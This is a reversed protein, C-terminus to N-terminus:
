QKVAPLFPSLHLFGDRDVPKQSHGSYIVTPNLMQIKKLSLAIDRWDTAYYNQAKLSPHVVILDGVFATGERLFITIAGPTHGPTFVVTAPLGYSDLSDGDHLIIDPIVPRVRLIAEVVPQLVKGVRGWSHTLPIDTRGEVLAQSDPASITIPAGTLERLKGASGFHDFHSHTLIILKLPKSAIKKLKRMIGREQGPSGADILFFASDTELAFATSMGAKIGHIKPESANVYHVMLAVALLILVFNYRTRSTIMTKRQEKIDFHLYNWDVGVSAKAPSAPVFM